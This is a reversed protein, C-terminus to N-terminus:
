ISQPVPMDSVVETTTETVTGDALVAMDHRILSTGTVTWVTVDWADGSRQAVAPVLRDKVDAIIKEKATEQSANLKSLWRIEDVSAVRYSAVVFDQTLDVFSTAISVATEDSSITAAGRVMDNFASPQGTLVVASGSDSLAVFYRRPHALTRNLADVVAWGSLWPLPVETLITGPEGIM